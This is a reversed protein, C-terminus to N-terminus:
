SNLASDVTAVLAHWSDIFKSVGEQELKATVADFDIDFQKLREILARSNAIEASISDGRVSGHDIVALLTKEPMTNVVYNAVLETVYMTDPFDPDKVGTSAMLPRQLNAGQAELAKWEQSGFCELFLGYAVRANAIAIKGALEAAPAGAARLKPDLEADVRSVFFSAVSHIKSIDMGASLARKLGAFYRDIVEAYRSVSFILTVNVSIGSAIADEIAPLGEKTAPIKIMVNERNVARWLEKAQAVTAKTDFALDPDVEISVRGDFGASAEYEAQFIDCAAAVDSTTLEFIAEASSAGRQRLSDLAKQYSSDGALAAAFITPNTTVGRLGHSNIMERLSGSEIRQRSLDDLWISVGAVRLDDIAGM